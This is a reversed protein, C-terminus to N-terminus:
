AIVRDMVKDAANILEELEVASYHTMIDGDVHGM